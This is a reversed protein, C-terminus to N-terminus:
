HICISSYFCPIIRYVIKIPQCMGYIIPPEEKVTADAAILEGITSYLVEAAKSNVQFFADPSVRFRVGLLEEYVFKVVM